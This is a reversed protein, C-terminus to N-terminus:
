ARSMEEGDWGVLDLLRGGLRKRAQEVVPRAAEEFASRQDATLAIVM